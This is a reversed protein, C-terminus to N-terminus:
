ARGGFDGPRIQGPLQAQPQRFRPDNQQAWLQAMGSGAGGIADAFPNMGTQQGAFPASPSLLDRVAMLMSASQPGSQTGFSGGQQNTTTTGQTRSDQFQGEFLGKLVGQLDGELLRNRDLRRDSEGGLDNLNQNQLNLQNMQRLAAGGPGGGISGTQNLNGAARNRQGIRRMLAGQSEIDSDQVRGTALDRLLNKQGEAGKFTKDTQTRTRQNMNQVTNAFNTGQSTSTQRGLLNGLGGAAGIVDQGAGQQSKLFDNFLRRSEEEAKKESNGGFLGSIAEMGLGLGPVLFDMFGM